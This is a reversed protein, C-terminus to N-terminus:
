MNKLKNKYANVMDANAPNKFWAVAEKVNAGIFDGEPTIINQNYKSRIFEGREILIEITSKIKIDNDNFMKNFKIPENSSFKDLENEKIIRDELSSVLVPKGVTVCYQAYVANFLEDDTIMTVFNAKAKNTEIRLKRQLDAEKQDDKFYFRISPDSNILATDKAIDKYLLCHRYMLYDEINVPRGYLYKTSELDNIAAIKAALAKKLEGLNSKDAQRYKEEIAKEQDQIKRFDIYKNYRFSIDFKRGLENVSIQINNLYQKVRTIFNENNPSLGILDPFYAEIEGKNSSLTRSSIVSSGIFDRRKSLVKDNARRFLSYNKVLAITISRKDVYERNKIYEDKEEVSGAVPASTSVTTPEKQTEEVPSVGDPTVKNESSEKSRNSLGFNLKASNNSTNNEM